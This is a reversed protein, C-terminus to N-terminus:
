LGLHIENYDSIAYKAIEDYLDDNKLNSWDVDVEEANGDEDNVYPHNQYYIGGTFTENDFNATILGVLAGSIEYAVFAEDVETRTITYTEEVFSILNSGQIYLDSTDEFDILVHELVKPAKENLVKWFDEISCDEMSRLRYIEMYMTQDTRNDIIQDKVLQLRKTNFLSVTESVNITTRSPVTIKYSDKAVLETEVQTNM